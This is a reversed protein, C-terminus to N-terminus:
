LTDVIAKRKAAYEDDTLLGKDHAEKLRKLADLKDSVQETPLKMREVKQFEPKPPQKDDAAPTVHYGREEMCAKFVERQKAKEAEIAVPIGVLTMGAVFNGAQRESTNAEMKARDKCSLTDLQIQEQTKPRVPMVGNALQFSGCGTLSVVCLIALKRM